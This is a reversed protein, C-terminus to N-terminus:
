ADLRSLMTKIARVTQGAPDSYSAPVFSRASAAVAESFPLPGLYSMAAFLIKRAAKVIHDAIADADDDDTVENLVLNVNFSGVLDRLLKLNHPQQIKVKEVLSWMSRQHDRGQGIVADILEVL